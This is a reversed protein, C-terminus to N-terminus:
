FVPPVFVEAEEEKEIAKAQKDLVQKELAIRRQVEAKIRAEESQRDLERQREAKASQIQQEEIQRASNAKKLLEIERRLADFEAAAALEQLKVEEERQIRKRAENITKRKETAAVQGIESSLRVAYGEILKQRMKKTFAPTIHFQAKFQARFREADPEMKVWSEDKFEKKISIDVAYYQSSTESTIQFNKSNIESIITTPSYKEAASRKAQEIAKQMCVQKDGKHQGYIEMFNCTTVQTEIVNQGVEAQEIAASVQKDLYSQKLNKLNRENKATELKHEDAKISLDENENQLKKITSQHQRKQELLKAKTETLAAIKPQFNKALEPFDAMGRENKSIDGTVESLSKDIDIIKNELGSIRINNQKITSLAAEQKAEHQIMARRADFVDDIQVSAQTLTSLSLVTILFVGHVASKM